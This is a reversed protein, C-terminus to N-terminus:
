PAPERGEDALFVVPYSMVKEARRIVPPGTEPSDRDPKPPRPRAVLWVRDKRLIQSRLVRAFDPDIGDERTGFLEDGIQRITPDLAQGARALAERAPEATWIERWRERLHRNEIFSDRLISRALRTAEPDDALRDLEGALEDRVARNVAIDAVIRELAVVFDDVHSELVPIAEEDIFRDWEDRVLDRRPLPTKDYMARWGFRWLSARDWLERGIEEVPPQAHERVIPLVERKVLPVLRDAVLEQRLRGGLRDIEDRHRAVSERFGQEVIPLSDRFTQEVLPRLTETLREGHRAMADTLLGRIRDRKEPPFMVGLVDELRGGQRYLVLEVHNPDLRDDHWRITVRRDVGRFDAGGPRRSPGGSRSTRRPGDSRSTVRSADAPRAAVSRVYGVQRWRDGAGVGAGSDIRSETRGNTLSGTEAFVPVDRTVHGTADLATLSRAPSLLYRTVSADAAHPTAGSRQRGFGVLLALAVSWTVLGLSLRLSRHTKNVPM